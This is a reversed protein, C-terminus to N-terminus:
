VEKPFGKFNVNVAIRKFISKPTSSTHYVDGRFFVVRNEEPEVKEVIKMEKHKKLAQVGGNKYIYPDVREDYLYTYGSGKERCFYFLATHHPEDYDIHPGHLLETEKPLILGARIRLLKEVNFYKKICDLFPLCMVNQTIHERHHYILHSFSSDHINIEKEKKLRNWGSTETQFIWGVKNLYDKLKKYQEPEIANEIIKYGYQNYM